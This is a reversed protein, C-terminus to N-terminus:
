WLADRAETVVEELVREPLVRAVSSVIGLMTLDQAALEPHCPLPNIVDGIYERPV